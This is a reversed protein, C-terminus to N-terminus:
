EWARARERDALINGFREFRSTENGDVPANAVVTWRCELRGSVPNTRWRIVPGRAACRTSRAPLRIIEANQNHVPHPAHASAGCLRAIARICRHAFIAIKM